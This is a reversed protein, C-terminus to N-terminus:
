IPKCEKCPQWYENHTHTEEFMKKARQLSTVNFWGGRLKMANVGKTSSEVPKCFRCTSRHLKWVGMSKDVNLWFVGMFLATFMFFTPVCARTVSGLKVYSLMGGLVRNVKYGLIFQM